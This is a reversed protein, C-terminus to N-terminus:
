SCSGPSECLSVAEWELFFNPIWSFIGGQWMSGQGRELASVRELAERGLSQEAM